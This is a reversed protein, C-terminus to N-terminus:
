GCNRRRGCGITTAVADALPGPLSGLRRGAQSLLHLIGLEALVESHWDPSAGVLGALRRIRNALSGARADV